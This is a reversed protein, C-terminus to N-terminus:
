PEEFEASFGVKFKTITGICTKKGPRTKSNVRSVTFIQEIQKVLKNLKTVKYDCLWTWRCLGNFGSILNFPLKLYVKDGFENRTDPPDGNGGPNHRNPQFPPRANTDLVMGGDREIIGCDAFSVSTPHVTVILKGILAFANNNAGKQFDSKKATLHTPKKIKFSITAPPRDPIQARITVNNDAMILDATLFAIPGAVALRAGKGKISWTVKSKKNVGKGRFTLKVTEGIGIERRNEKDKQEDAGKIVCDASPRNTESTIRMAGTEEEECLAVGSVVFYMCIVAFYIKFICMGWFYKLLNFYFFM